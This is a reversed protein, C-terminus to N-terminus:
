CHRLRIIRDVAVVERLDVHITSSPEVLLLTNSSGLLDGCTSTWQEEAASEWIWCEM